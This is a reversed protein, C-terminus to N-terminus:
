NIINLVDKSIGLLTLVIDEGKSCPVVDKIASRISLNVSPVDRKAKLKKIADGADGVLKRYVEPCREKLGGIESLAKELAILSFVRVDGKAAASRPDSQIASICVHPSKTQACATHLVRNRSDAAASFQQPFLITIYLLVSLLAFVSPKM